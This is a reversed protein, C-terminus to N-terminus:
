TLAIKRFAGINTALCSPVRTLDTYARLLRVYLRHSAPQVARVRKLTALEDASLTEAFQYFDSNPSPLQKPASPKLATAAVM